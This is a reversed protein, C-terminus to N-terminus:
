DEPSLFRKKRGKTMTVVQGTQAIQAIDEDTSSDLRELDKRALEYEPNIKLAEMLCRRANQRDKMLVYALGMNQWAPYFKPSIKLVEELIPLAEEPKRKEGMLIRATDLLRNIRDSEDAGPELEHLHMSFAVDKQPNGLRSREELIIEVPAKGELEELPTNLWEKQLANMQMELKQRNKRRDPKVRNQVYDIAAGVLMTEMSGKEVYDSQEAVFSNWTGILADSFERANFNRNPKIKAFVKEALSLNSGKQIAKERIEDLFGQIEQQPLGQEKCILVFRERIPLQENKPAAFLVECIALPSLHAPRGSERMNKAIIRVAPNSAIPFLYGVGTLICYDEFPLMRLFACQGKQANRSTSADRVQHEQGDLLNVLLIEKGTRVAKIEFLSFKGQRFNKYLRKTEDGLDSQKLFAELLNGRLVKSRADFVFWDLVLMRKDKDPMQLPAFFGLKEDLESILEPREELFRGIRSYFLDMEYQYDSSM